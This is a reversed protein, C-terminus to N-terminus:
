KRTGGTLKRQVCELLSHRIRSLTVSLASASQGLRQAMERVSGGLAYRERVLERQRPPLEEVCDELLSAAGEPDAARHEAEDALQAFLGDDFIHRDRHCDRHHALVKYRVIKYAWALFNTGEVFEDSRRWMVLNADQLVDNADDRNPLLSLVFAYLAPQCNILDRVFREQVDKPKM